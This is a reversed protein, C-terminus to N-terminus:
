KEKGGDMVKLIEDFGSDTSGFEARFKHLTQLLEMFTRPLASFIASILFLIAAVILIKKRGFRDSLIGATCAGIICGILLNSVAFGEQHANLSFNKTVFPIAGSIVGTDFGFLLGGMAAVIAVVYVFLINGKDSNYNISGTSNNEITAM